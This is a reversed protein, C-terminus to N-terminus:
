LHCAIDAILATSDRHQLSTAQFVEYALAIPDHPLLILPEQRPRDGVDVLRLL